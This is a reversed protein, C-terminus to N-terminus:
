VLELRSRPDIRCTQNGGLQLAIGATDGVLEAVRNQIVHMAAIVHFAICGHSFFSVTIV